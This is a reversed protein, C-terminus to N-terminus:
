PPRTRKASAKLLFPGRATRSVGRRTYRKCAPIRDRHSKQRLSDSCMDFSNPGTPAGYGLNVRAFYDPDRHPDSM